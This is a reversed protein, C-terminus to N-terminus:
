AAGAAGAPLMFGYCDAKSTSRNVASDEDEKLWRGDEQHYIDIKSAAITLKEKKEIAEKLDDVDSVSATIKFASGITEFKKGDKRIQQVWVAPATGTGSTPLPIKELKRAILLKMHYSSPIVAWEEDTGTFITPLGFTIADKDIVGGLNEEAILKAGNDTQVNNVPSFGHNAINELHARAKPDEVCSPLGPCRMWSAACLRSQPTSTVVLIRTSYTHWTQTWAGIM